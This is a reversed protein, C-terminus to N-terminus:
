PPPTLKAVEIQVNAIQQDTVSKAGAAFAIQRTQEILQDMKGDMSVKIEQVKLGTDQIKQRNILGIAATLLVLFATIINFIFITEAEM